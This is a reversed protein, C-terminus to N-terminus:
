RHAKLQANMEIRSSSGGDQAKLKHKSSLEQAQVM